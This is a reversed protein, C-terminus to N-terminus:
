VFLHLFWNIVSLVISFLVAWWFGHVKFGPVVAGVFLILLANIVLLFLGFTIITIPLTLLIMVPKVIANLFGILLAVWIAQGFNKVEVGPLMYATIVVALASILLSIIFSIM